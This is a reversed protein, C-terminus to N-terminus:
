ALVRYGICVGLLINEEKRTEDIMIEYKVLIYKMFFAKDPSWAEANTDTLPNPQFM